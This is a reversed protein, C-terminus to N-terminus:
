VKTIWNTIARMMEDLYGEFFHDAGKIIEIQVNSESPIEAAIAKLKNVDGHEDRDGHVLLLPKRCKKLFDFDYMNVPTGLGILRTVRSDLIGVELGFRAGFSFGALTIPLNPYQEVLYDIAKRADDAEGRGHDHIGTTQGVGRFNMRLTIFGADNLARAARFVVKNHMTGGHLPHPHLVLATGKPPNNGHVEKFVCELQGHSVPIFLNGAPYM